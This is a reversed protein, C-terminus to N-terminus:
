ATHREQNADNNDTQRDTTRRRCDLALPVNEFKTNFPLHYSFTRKEVSFHGSTPSPSLLNTYPRISYYSTAYKSEFSMFVM